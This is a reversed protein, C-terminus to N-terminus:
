PWVGGAWRLEAGVVLEVGRGGHFHVGVRKWDCGGDGPGGVDRGVEEGRGDPLVRVRRVVARWLADPQVRAVVVANTRSSSRRRHHQPLNPLQDAGPDRRRLNILRRVACDHPSSRVRGGKPIRMERPTNRRTHIINDRTLPPSNAPSNHQRYQASPMGSSHAFTHRSDSVVAASWQLGRVNDVQVDREVQVSVVSVRACRKRQGIRVLLPQIEDLRRPRRELHTDSRTSWPLRIAADPLRNLSDFTSEATTTNSVHQLSYALFAPKPTLVCNVPCPMPM